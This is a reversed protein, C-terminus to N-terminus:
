NIGLMKKANELDSCQIHTLFQLYGRLGFDFDVHSAFLVTGNGGPTANEVEQDGFHRQHIAHILRRQFLEQVDEVERHNPQNGFRYRGDVIDM